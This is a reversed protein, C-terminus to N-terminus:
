FIKKKVCFYAIPLISIFSLPRLGGINYSLFINVSLYFILLNFILMGFITKKSILSVFAFLFLIVYLFLSSFGYQVIIDLYLNHFGSFNNNPLHVLDSILVKNANSGYGFLLSKLENNFLLDPVIGWRLDRNSLGKDLRFYDSLIELLNSYFILSIVVLLILSLLIFNSKIVTFRHQSLKTIFCSFYYVLIVMFIGFLASRSMSIVLGVLNIIFLLYLISNNQPILMKYNLLYFAFIMATAFTIGASLPDIFFSGNCKIFGIDYIPKYSISDLSVFNGIVSFLAFTSSILLFLFIFILFDKNRALLNIFLFLSVISSIFYFFPVFSNSLNDSLYNSFISFVLILSFIFLVLLLNIANVYNMFNKIPYTLIIFFISAALLSFGIFQKIDQFIGVESVFSLFIVISLLIRTTLNRLNIM